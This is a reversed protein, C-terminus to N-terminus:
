TKFTQDRHQVRYSGWWCNVQLHATGDILQDAPAAVFGNGRDWRLGTNTLYPDCLTADRINIEVLREEIKGAASRQVLEM